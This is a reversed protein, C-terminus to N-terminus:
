NYFFMIVRYDWSGKIFLGLQLYGYQITVSDCDELPDNIEARTVRAGETEM